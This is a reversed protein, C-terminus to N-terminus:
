ISDELTSRFITFPILINVHADLLDNLRAIKHGIYDAYEFFEENVLGDTKAM